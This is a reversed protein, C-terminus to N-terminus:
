LPYATVLIRRFDGDEKHWVSRVHPTTGDAARLPGEYVYKMGFGTPMERVLHSPKGHEFLAHILPEIAESSFGRSFFFKAKGKNDPHDPNLLYGKIKVDGIALDATWDDSM